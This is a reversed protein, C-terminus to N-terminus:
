KDIDLYVDLIKIITKEINLLLFVQLHCIAMRKIQTNKM